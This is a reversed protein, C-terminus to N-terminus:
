RKKKKLLDNGEKEFMDQKVLEVNDDERAGTYLAETALPGDNPRDGDGEIEEESDSKQNIDWKKLRRYAEAKSRNIKIELWYHNDRVDWDLGRTNHDKNIQAFYKLLAKRVMEKFPTYKDPRSFFNVIVIVTTIFVSVGLCFFATIRQNENDNRIGYYMLFVFIVMLITSFGLAYIISPRIGEVDKKRNHSYVMATIKACGEIIQNFEEKSILGGIYSRNPKYLNKLFGTGKVNSPIIVCNEDSKPVYIEVPQGGRFFTVKKGQEIEQAM